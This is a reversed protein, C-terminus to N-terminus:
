RLGILCALLNELKKIDRDLKDVLKQGDRVKLKGGDALDLSIAVPGETVAPVAAPAAEAKPGKPAEKPVGYFNFAGAANRAEQRSRATSPKVEPPKTRSVVPKGGGGAQARGAQVQTAPKNGANGGGQVGANDQQRKAVRGQKLKGKQTADPEGKVTVEAVKAGKKLGRAGPTKAARPKPPTPTVTTTIGASRLAPLTPEGTAGLMPVQLTAQRLGRTTAPMRALTTEIERLRKIANDRIPATIRNTGKSQYAAVIRQLQDREQELDARTEGAVEPQAPQTLLTGESLATTTPLPQAARLREGRTPRPLGGGFLPLQVPQTPVVPRMPLTPQVGAAQQAQQMAYLDRANASQQALADTQQQIVAAQQAQAVEFERQRRIRAQIAQLQDGMQANAPATPAEGAFQLAGQAPNVVPVQAPAPLGPLAQQPQMRTALEQASIQGGFVDLVGQTGPGGPPVNGQQRLMQDQYAVAGPGMGAMIVPGGM